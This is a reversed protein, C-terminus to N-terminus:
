SPEAGVTVVRVNFRLPFRGGGGAYVPQAGPSTPRIDLSPHHRDRVAIEAGDVTSPDALGQLADLQGGLGDVVGGPDELLELQSADRSIPTRLARATAIKSRM